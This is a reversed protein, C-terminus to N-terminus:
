TPIPITISTCGINNDDRLEYIRNLPDLHACLPLQWECTRAERSLVWGFTNRSGKPGHSTV